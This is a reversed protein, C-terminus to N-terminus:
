ETVIRVNYADAQFYNFALFFRVKKNLYSEGVLSPQCLDARFSITLGNAFIEGVKGTKTMIGTLKRLQGAYSEPIARQKRVEKVSERELTVLQGMGKGNGLFVVPRDPQRLNVRSTDRVSKQLEVQANLREDEFRQDRGGEIIRMCTVIYRYLYSLVSKGKNCWASIKSEAVQLEVPIHSAVKVWLRMTHDIKNDYKLAEELLKILEKAIGSVPKKKEKCLELHILVIHRNIPATSTKSTKKLEQFRKILDAKNESKNPGGGRVGLRFLERRLEPYYINDCVTELIDSTESIGDLIFQHADPSQLYKLIGGEFTRDVYKFVDCMMRVQPIYSDELKDPDISAARTFSKVGEEALPIIIGLDAGCEIENKVQRKYIIGRMQTLQGRVNRQMRSALLISDDTHRLAIEFGEKGRQVSYYRGLHAKFFPNGPHNSIAKKFVKVVDKSEPIDEVLSSFRKYTKEDHIRNLLVAKTVDEEMYSVFEVAKDALNSTWNDQHIGLPVSLLQRLMEKGITFHRPRWCGDEEILLEISDETLIDDISHLQRSKLKFIGALTSLPLERQAYHFAISLFCLAQRQPDKLGRLSDSVFPELGKFRDEFAALGYYFPIQLKDDANRIKNIESRREPSHFCYVKVFNDREEETLPKALVATDKLSSEKDRKRDERYHRHVVHLILCSVKENSLNGYLSEVDNGDAGPGEKIDALIIVPISCFKWIQQIALFTQYNITKLCVCPYRLHCDYLLKRASTTGGTGRQHFLTLFAAGPYGLEEEITKRLPEWSEREVAYNM